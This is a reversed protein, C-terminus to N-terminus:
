FINNKRVIQMPMTTPAAAPRKLFGAVNNCGTRFLRTKLLATVPESHSGVECGIADFFSQKFAFRSFPWQCSGWPFFHVLWVPKHRVLQATPEPPSLERM